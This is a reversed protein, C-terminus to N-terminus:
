YNFRVDRKRLEGVLEPTTTYQVADFGVSRAGAVHGAIDDVYFIDEPQCGALEAAARFIATAPKSVGIEFSLAHVSFADAVIRYRRRCHDWHSKSTNSLVGMRHGAQALQAVVPVISLNINFIDNGAEALADFDARSGTRQCFLEHFQRDSIRGCEFQDQLGGAFITERVLAADINAAEGMQRCMREVSFDVLVKGLDFYLFKPSM